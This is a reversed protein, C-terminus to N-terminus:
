HISKVLRRPRKKTMSAEVEGINTIDIPDRRHEIAVAINIIVHSIETESEAAVEETDIDITVPIMVTEKGALTWQM